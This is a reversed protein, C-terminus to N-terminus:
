WHHYEYNVKKELKMDTFDFNNIEIALNYKTNNSITEPAQKRAFNKSDVDPIIKILLAIEQSSKRNTKLTLNASQDTSLIKEDTNPLPGNKQTIKFLQLLLNMVNEEEHIKETMAEETPHRSLYDTSALNKEATHKISIDLHALRDLRRPIRADYQRYARNRKILIELAQHHNYIYVVKGYLSDESTGM